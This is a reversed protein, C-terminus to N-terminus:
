QLAAFGGMRCTPEVWEPGALTPASILAVRVVSRISVREAVEERRSNARRSGRREALFLSEMGSPTFDVLGRTYLSFSLPDVRRAAHHRFEAIQASVVHLIPPKAASCYGAPRRIALGGFLRGPM